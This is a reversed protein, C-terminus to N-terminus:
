CLRYSSRFIFISLQQLKKKVTKSWLVNCLHKLFWVFPYHEIFLLLASVFRRNLSINNWTNNVMATTRCDHLTTVHPIAFRTGCVTCEFMHMDEFLFTIILIIRLNIAQKLRIIMWHKSDNFTKQTPCHVELCCQQVKVMKFDTAFISFTFFFCFAKALSRM